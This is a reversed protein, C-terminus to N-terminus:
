NSRDPLDALRINKAELTTGMARQLRALSLNYDIRSRTENTRALTLDRQQQLVTYNTSLGAELKKVEAALREAALERAARYANARQFDTEVARVAIDVELLAQAELNKHRLMSQEAEGRARAVQSRSLITELPIDFTLRVSWNEYKFRFTDKFATSAGAPLTGIIVGSLPDNDLYQIQTGSVGPSQLTARFSLNPLTQNRAYRLNLDSTKLGAQSVALDPRNVLAKARAEEVGISVADTSPLDAPILSSAPEEKERPLNLRTRLTDQDNRVQAEAQLIDAERAAVEARANLIEIPPIVGAELEKTNKALLDRALRLSEQQVRLNERSFVLNWYAEEVNYVTDVLAQKLQGESMELNNKAILIERRAIAFGADRLLPQRFDFALSSGYRPNILQFSQNTTNKYSYLSATLSAGTPLRQILAGQYDNVDTTVQGAADLWSFSAQNSKQVGANFSMTPLFSERARGLASSAIEPGLLEAALNLNNKLATLICEQLTMPRDAAAPSAAAAAALVVLAIATRKM